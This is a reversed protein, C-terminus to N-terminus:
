HHRRYNQRRHSMLDSTVIVGFWYMVKVIEIGLCSPTAALVAADEFLFLIAIIM